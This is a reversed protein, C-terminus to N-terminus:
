KIAEIIVVGGEVVDIQVRFGYLLSMGILPDAESAAVDVIQERGDWIVTAKYM